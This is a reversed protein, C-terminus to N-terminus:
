KSSYLFADNGRESIDGNYIADLTSHGRSYGARIFQNNKKGQKQHSKSSLEKTSTCCGSFTVQHTCRGCATKAFATTNRRASRSQPSQKRIRQTAGCCRGSAAPPHKGFCEGQLSLNIILLLPAALSCLLYSAPPLSLSAKPILCNSCLVTEFSNSVTIDSNQAPIYM